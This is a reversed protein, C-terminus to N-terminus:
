KTLDCALADRLVAIAHPAAVEERAVVGILTLRVLAQSVRGLAAATASALQEPSPDMVDDGLEDHYLGVVADQVLEQAKATRLGAKLIDGQVHAPLFRRQVKAGPRATRIVLDLDGALGFREIHPILAALDASTIDSLARVYESEIRERTVEAM